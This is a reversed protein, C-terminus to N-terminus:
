MSPAKLVDGEEVGGLVETLADGVLGTQIAREEATDGHIVSVHWKGNNNKIFANPVALVDHKDNKTILLNATMGAKIDTTTSISCLVKYNVVGSIVTASPAISLIKGQIHRDPGLADFTIDVDQGPAIGEMLAEALHSEIYLAGPDLVTIISRDAQVFEGLKADVTGIVGSIPSVIRSKDYSAQAADVQAQAAAVQAHAIAIDEDRPNATKAGLEAEKQKLTASAADVDGQASSLAQTQNQLASQYANLNALYTSAQTNPIPVNWTGDANTGNNKFTVYLGQTGLTHPIDYTLQFSDSELGTVNVSGGSISIKYAGENKGTYTGSITATVNAGFTQVPIAAVGSNRLTIQANAVILEQQNKQTQYNQRANALAVQASDVASQFVTVDATSAGHLLKDENAKALDLAAKSQNILAQNDEENQMALLDGKKVKDGIKAHLVEINGSNKFGLVVFSESTVNGAGQVSQKVEQKTVTYVASANTGFLLHAVAFYGLIVVLLISSVTIIRKNKRTKM